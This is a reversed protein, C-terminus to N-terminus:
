NQNNLVQDLINPQDTIIGNVGYDIFTNMESESNVTWVFVGLNQAKAENILTQTAVGKSPVIADINNELVADTHDGISFIFGTYLEPYLEEVTILATLDFSTIFVKNELGLNKVLEVTKSAILKGGNYDEPDGTNCIRFVKIEIDVIGVPTMAMLAETLSPVTDTEGGTMESIVNCESIQDMTMDLLCGTCDTSVGMSEDHIVPLEYDGSLLIDLEVGDAGENIAQQFSLLTNEPYPNSSSNSGTGRHGINYIINPDPSFSVIDPSIGEDSECASYFLAFALAFWFMTKIVSIEKGFDM